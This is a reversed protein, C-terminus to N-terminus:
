DIRDGLRLIFVEVGEPAGWEIRGQGVTICVIRFTATPSDNRYGNRFKVHTHLQGFLRKRWYPKYERYEESKGHNLIMDFWKKKITLHLVRM